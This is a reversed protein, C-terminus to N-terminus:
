KATKWTDVFVAVQVQWTVFTYISEAKYPKRWFNPVMSSFFFFFRHLPFLFTWMLFLFFNRTITWARAGWEESGTLKTPSIEYVDTVSNASPPLITIRIFFLYYIRSYLSFHCFHNKSFDRHTHTRKQVFTKHLRWSSGIFSWSM